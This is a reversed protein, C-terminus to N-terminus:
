LCRDGLLDIDVDLTSVSAHVDDVSRDYIGDISRRLLVDWWCGDWRSLVSEGVDLVFLELGLTTM